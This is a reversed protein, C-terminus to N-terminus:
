EYTHEESRIGGDANRHLDTITDEALASALPGLAQTFAVTASHRRATMIRSVRGTSHGAHHHLDAAAQDARAEDLVGPLWARHALSLGLQRGLVAPASGSRRRTGPSRRRCRVHGRWCRGCRPAHCGLRSRSVPAVLPPEPRSAAGEARGPDAPQYRHVHTRPKPYGSRFLTTYPFLTDTRTSRPPRRLMLIFFDHM